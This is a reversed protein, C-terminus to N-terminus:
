SCAWIWGEDCESRLPELEENFELADYREHHNLQYSAHDDLAVNSWSLRPRLVWSLCGSCVHVPRCGLQQSMERIDEEDGVVNEVEPCVM